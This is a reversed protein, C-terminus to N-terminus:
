LSLRILSVTKFMQWPTKKCFFDSYIVTHFIDTNPTTRTRIKECESQIHLSVSYRETDTWIRFFVSWLLEWYPCAKRLTLSLNKFWGRSHNYNSVDTHCYSLKLHYYLCSFNWKFSFRRILAFPNDVRSLGVNEKVYYKENIDKM